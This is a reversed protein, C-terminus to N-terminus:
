DETNGTLSEAINKALHYATNSIHRQWASESRCWRFGNHKLKGIVEAAPKGDFLVQLRNAERNEFIRVGNIVRDVATSVERRKLVVIRQEIRRMNANNNTLSFSPFGQGCWSRVILEEWMEPTAMDLKLFGERDNKKILKNASKMFEQNAKMGALKQELKQLADPDDSFIADNNKISEAKDAYYDAKKDAEISKRMTSDIKARYNRDRKESHHGVLIPQGMPIVSAMERSRLYLRESEAENRSAMKEAHEIRNEKRQHFNHKMVFLANSPQVM